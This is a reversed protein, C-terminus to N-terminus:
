SVAAPVPMASMRNNTTIPLLAGLLGKGSYTLFVHVGKGKKPLNVIVIQSLDIVKLKTLKNKCTPCSAVSFIMNADCTARIFLPQSQIYSIM